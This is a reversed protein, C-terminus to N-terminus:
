IFLGLFHKTKINFGGSEFRATVDHCHHACFVKGCTRARGVFEVAVLFPVSLEALVQNFCKVGRVAQAREIAHAKVERKQGLKEAQAVVDYRAPRHFRRVDELLRAEAVFGRKREVHEALVVANRDLDGVALLRDVHCVLAPKVLEVLVTGHVHRNQTVDVSLFEDAVGAAVDGDIQFVPRAISQVALMRAKQVVRPLGQVPSGLM